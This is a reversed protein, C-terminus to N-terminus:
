KNKSIKVNLGLATTIAHIQLHNLRRNDSGTLVRVMHSHHVTVTKPDQNIRDALARIGYADIYPRLQEVINKDM